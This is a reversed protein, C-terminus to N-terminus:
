MPSDPQRSDCMYLANKLTIVVKKKRASLTSSSASMLTVELFKNLTITACSHLPVHMLFIMVSNKLITFMQFFCFHISLISTLYIVVDM